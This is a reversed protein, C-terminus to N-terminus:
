TVMKLHSTIASSIRYINFIISTRTVPPLLHTYKTFVSYASQTKSINIWCCTNKLVECI